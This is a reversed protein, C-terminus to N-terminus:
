PVTLVIKGQLNGKAAYAHAQRAQELPFVSDIVVRLTGDSLLPSIQALQAGNSVVQTTSVSVGRRVSEGGDDYGLGFVPFLAGGPRIIPLFRRSQPGGVADVVLDVDRLVEEVRIRGYDYFEDAGLQRVMDAHKGSAVAIVHAGRWKALQVLLHGVGGGAGNVLVTRGELPVPRHQHPQLPNPVDHGQDVIFQWATLLSMPAAAAHAHDIGAPKLALDTAPVKVYQAYARSEGNLGSPFRVMSYVEDGVAFGTVDDAVAEVVGAIDTGPIIPFVMKPQWDPPLMDYGQRLYWDPPNVGVAYTRVLVEGASIVPRPADEYVLVDPGGFAHLRVAKMVDNM